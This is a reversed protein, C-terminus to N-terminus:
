DLRSGKSVLAAVQKVGENGSMSTGPLAEKDDANAPANGNWSADGVRHVPPVAWHLSFLLRGCASHDAPSNKATELASVGM